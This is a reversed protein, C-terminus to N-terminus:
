KKRKLCFAVNSLFISKKFEYNINSDFKELIDETKQCAFIFSRLNYSKEQNMIVEVEGILENKDADKEFNLNFDNM